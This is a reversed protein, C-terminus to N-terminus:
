AKHGAEAAKWIVEGIVLSLNAMFANPNGSRIAMGVAVGALVSVVADPHDMLGQRQFAEMVAEGCAKVAENKDEDTM